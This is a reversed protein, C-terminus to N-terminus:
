HWTSHYCKQTYLVYNLYSSLFCFDHLEWHLLSHQIHIYKLVACNSMVRSQSKNIKWTHVICPAHFCWRGSVFRDWSPFFIKHHNLRSICFLKYAFCQLPVRFSQPDQHTCFVLPLHLPLTASRQCETKCPSSDWTEWASRWSLSLCDKRSETNSSGCTNAVVGPLPSM